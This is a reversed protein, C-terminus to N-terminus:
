ICLGTGGFAVENVSRRTQDLRVKYGTDVKAGIFNYSPHRRNPILVDLSHGVLSIDLLYHITDVALRSM